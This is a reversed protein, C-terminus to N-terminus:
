KQNGKIEKRDFVLDRVGDMDMGSAWREYGFKELTRELANDLKQDLNDKYYIKLEGRKM